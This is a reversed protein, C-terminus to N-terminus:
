PRIFKGSHMRGDESVTVLYMGPNLGSLDIGESTSLQGQLICRGQLNFIKYDFNESKVDIKLESMETNQSLLFSDNGINEPSEMNVTMDFGIDDWYVSNSFCGVGVAGEKVITSDYVDILTNETNTQPNWIKVIIRNDGYREVILQIWQSFSVGTQNSNIKQIQSVNGNDSVLLSIGPNDSYDPFIKIMYFRGDNQYQFYFHADTSNYSNPATYFWATYTGVDFQMSQNIARVAGYFDTPYLLLSNNFSHYQESSVETYANSFPISDFGFYDPYITYYFSWDSMGNEFDEINNQTYGPMVCFLLLASFVFCHITKM